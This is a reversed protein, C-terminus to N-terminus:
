SAVEMILSRGDRVFSQVTEESILKGFRRGTDHDTYLYNAYRVGADSRVVEGLKFLFNGLQLTEPFVSVQPPEPSEAGTSM